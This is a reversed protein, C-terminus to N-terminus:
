FKLNLNNKLNREEEVQEVISNFGDVKYYGKRVSNITQWFFENFNNEDEISMTRKVPKSQKIIYNIKMLTKLKKLQVLM